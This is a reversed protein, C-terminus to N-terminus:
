QAPQAKDLPFPTREWVGGLKLKEVTYAEWEHLLGALKARDEAGLRDGLDLLKEKLGLRELHPLWFDSAQKETAIIDRAQDLEGMAILLLSQM